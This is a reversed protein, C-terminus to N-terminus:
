LSRECPNHPTTGVKLFLIGRQENNDTYIGLSSDERGVGEVGTSLKVNLNHCSTWWVQFNRSSEWGQPENSPPCVIWSVTQWFGRYCNSCQLPLNLAKLAHQTTWPQPHTVNQRLAGVIVSASIENAIFDVYPHSTNGELV